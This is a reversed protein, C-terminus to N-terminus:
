KSARDPAMIQVATGLVAMVEEPIDPTGWSSTLAADVILGFEGAIM